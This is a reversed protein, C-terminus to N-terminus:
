DGSADLDLEWKLSLGIGTVRGGDGDFGKRPDHYQGIILVNQCTDSLGPIV